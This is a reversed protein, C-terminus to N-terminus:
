FDWNLGITFQPGTKYSQYVNGGQTFEVEADLLNEGKFIFQWSNAFYWRWNVTLDMRPELIVDPQQSVGVDVITDGNQNLLLTLEHDNGIDDYGFILNAIYEPQGQLPRTDGTALQVESEIWSVNGAIFFSKTVSSGFPFEKRGELEIGYLQAEDANQFTRSNGATGSAPQVVREIPQDIDKYFVAASVSNQDDWYFQYRLDANFAESVQLNPNGRIRIDFDPDYFTANSTEKFDPRSVTKSGALRLTQTDTFFWNFTLTPLVVSEDLESRVAPATDQLGGGQLSFTDTTQKFDEYRAGLVLQYREGILQDYSLYLANLDLDAEYSDSALTKDQFTYGTSSDGTITTENIVDDVRLNPANDDLMQGGTFGYSESDSDRERTIVQAGFLVTAASVAGPNVLYDFDVSFDFNDDVLDDYRRLINPVELDYVGDNGTLDFRIERRDPAERKARSFTAQWDAVLSEDGGMIHNGTIQQSFFQREVWDITYRISQELADGDFGEQYRVRNQTVRSYLSNAGFSSNGVNLGLNLLASSEIDNSFQEFTFDDEIEIADAFGNGNGGASDGARGSYEREIGDVRQKWENRYNGAVFFGFEAGRWDFDFANGYSAGVTVKPKATTTDLDLDDKLLLAGVRGLEQEVVSPYYDAYDLADSIARFVSANSRSGDDAGFVDYDGRIPDAWVTSGTLGGTFGTQASIRGESGTPFTRTNIVLNGGTSEGPMSAIFTKKVDLQNVFNTPFLDLPVTRKSPDTSPLMAGNLETTIYRGGLGRIFVFRGDKITVSPIRIVSQAIDSGGFRALEAADMTDVVTVAYRESEGSVMPKARAIVVLEEIKPRADLDADATKEPASISYSAGREINAVVRVNDVRQKGLDADAIELSYIGRPLEFRYNGGSDTRTVIDTGIVAVTANPVPVGDSTIRGALAGQAAVAREAPAENRFYKAITARPEAGDSLEISLDANQGLASDFRHSYILEGDAIVAVAHMGAALDFFVAGDDGITKDSGGDLRVARGAAPNGNEFVYVALEDAAFGTSNVLGAMLMAAVITLRTKM